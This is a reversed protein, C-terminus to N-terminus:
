NGLSSHVRTQLQRDATLPVLVPGPRLAQALKSPVERIHVHLSGSAIGRVVHAENAHQTAQCGRRQSTHAAKTHRVRSIVVGVHAVGQGASQEAQLRCVMLSPDPMQM